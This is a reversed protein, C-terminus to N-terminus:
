SSALIFRNLVEELKEFYYDLPLTIEEEIDIAYNWFISKIETQINIREDRKINSKLFIAICLDSIKEFYNLYLQSKYNAYDPQNVINNNVWPQFEKQFEKQFEQVRAMEKQIRFMDFAEDKSFFSALDIVMIEKKDDIMVNNEHLDLHLYDLSLAYRLANCLNIANKAAQERTLDHKNTKSLKTGEIFQLILNDSVSNLTDCRFYEFSKIINPHNLQRGRAFEREGIAFLTESFLPNEHKKYSKLAFRQGKSDVVLYVTGFLGEGLTKIITYCETSSCLNVHEELSSVKKQDEALGYRGVAFFCLFILFVPKNM